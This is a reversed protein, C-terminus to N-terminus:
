IYCVSRHYIKTKDEEEFGSGLYMSEKAIRKRKKIM